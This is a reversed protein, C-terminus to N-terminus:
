NGIFYIMMRAVGDGFFTQVDTLEKSNSPRSRSVVVSINKTHFGLFHLYKEYEISCKEKWEIILRNMGISSIM